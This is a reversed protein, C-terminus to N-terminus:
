RHGIKRIARMIRKGLFMVLVVGVTIGIAVYALPLLETGFTTAYDQSSSVVTSGGPFSFWAYM